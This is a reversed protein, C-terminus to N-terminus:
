KRGALFVAQNLSRRNKRKPLIQLRSARKESPALM